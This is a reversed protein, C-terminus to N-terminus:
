FEQMGSGGVRSNRGSDVYSQIQQQGRMMVVHSGYDIPVTESGQFVQQSINKKGASGEARWSNDVWRDQDDHIFSTEAIVKGNEDFRIQKYSLPKGDPGNVVESKSRIKGEVTSLVGNEFGNADFSRELVEKKEDPDTNEVRHAFIGHPTKVFERSFSGIKAELTRPDRYMDTGSIVMEEGTKRDPYKAGTVSLVKTDSENYLMSMYEHGSTRRRPKVTGLKKTDIVEVTGNEMGENKLPLSAIEYKMGDIQEQMSAITEADMEPMDKMMQEMSAIEARLSAETDAAKEVLANKHDQESVTEVPAEAGAEVGKKQEEPINPNM